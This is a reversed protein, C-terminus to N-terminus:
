HTQWKRRCETFTHRRDAHGSAGDKQTQDCNVEKPAPPNAASFELCEDLRRARCREARTASVRKVGRGFGNRDISVFNGHRFRLAAEKDCRRLM